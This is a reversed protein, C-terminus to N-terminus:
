AASRPDPERRAAEPLRCVVARFKGNPGRPIEAVKELAVEVKGMRARLRDAITHAHAETFGAGSVFKVAVQDRREQVIQAEHVPLGYFVPNLWYVRRGDPAILMDNSRGEISSMHPLARGCACGRGQVPLSGRDGIVYRILPMATNVLGTCVLRGAIGGAAPIDAQDDVVEIYGLEPWVHLTGSPCESAGAVIEVMGYTERVPAGFARGIVDRQQPHLPEANTVVVKIGAYQEGAELWHRALEAASSSYAVLHDVGYRRMAAAYAPANRASVHNASLYLQHLASNWVWFPPGRTDSPVVAQGGLIAWSDRWSVGHWRRCRAELLAYYERNAARSRWLTLPKGTTGSTNVQFLRRIAWDDAVFARPDSRLPDKHLLPWHELYEWSVRDGALRRKAWHARYYPVRTAAHHLVYALREKQWQEIREAPWRERELAEAVLRESPGGYRWWRLRYGQLSAAASRLPTPLAHYIRLLREGV